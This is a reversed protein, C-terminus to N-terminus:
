GFVIRYGARRAFDNYRRISDRDKERDTERLDSYPRLCDHRRKDDDRVESPRWGESLLFSMWGEHETEALIELHLNLHQAVRKEASETARGRRLRLGVLALNEPMRQAAAVNSRMIEPPLKEFPVDYRFTWGQTRALNRWSEHIAPALVRVVEDGQFSEDRRCLTVFEAPDLYLALQSDSALQSYRLPEGSKHAVKLPELLRELSRAGHRFGSTELLATLLGPDIDLRERPKLGLLARVFIARRLPFFLDPTAREDPNPGLVNLYADLRSKFDPGKALKFHQVDEKAASVPPGFAEYSPSTAGAFIFVSRGIPHTIQGEQFRGDQMPALLYQLWRYSASDFEDWFVVPVFGQLVRDRVQHFAGILDDASSFQSLNFEMWGEYSKAGPAAFIGTALERVGFSKGAGPAGFVGISLPKAGRGASTRYNLLLRRLLRLSEMEPRSVSLLNGIRLHPVGQLAAEGRLAIQRAFGLLPRRSVAAGQSSALISWGSDGVSREPVDARAFAHRPHVIEEALTAVPFGAGRICVGSQSAPGHGNERLFRMGSLGREIARPYSVPAALALERVIAATLCTNLGFCDGAIGEGWEGELNAPDFVLQAKIGPGSFDVWLAGDHNFAVILHACNKLPRLVPNGTLEGLLQAAAQEWSLGHSLRVEMRRLVEISVVIVLRQKWPESELRSWLDGRGPVSGLKLVIMRPMAPATRKRFAPLHWFRSQALSRFNRGADDLVLVDPAAPNATAPRLFTADPGAPNNGDNQALPLSPGYGLSRSDRWVEDKSGTKAVPKWLAYSIVCEPFAAFQQPDPLDYALSATALPAPRPKTFPENAKETKAKKMQWDAVKLNHECDFVRQILRQTLAAGGTERVIHLGRQTEDRLRLREGEYIHHDLVIDGTVLVTSPTSAPM